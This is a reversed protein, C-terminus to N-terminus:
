VGKVREGLRALMSRRGRPGCSNVRSARSAAHNSFPSAATLEMCFLGVTGVLPGM